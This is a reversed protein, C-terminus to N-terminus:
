EAQASLKRLATNMPAHSMMGGDVTIIQSSVFEAEDSAFFLAM